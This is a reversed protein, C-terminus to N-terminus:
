WLNLMHKNAHFQFIFIHFQFLLLHFLFYIPLLLFTVCLLTLFALPRLLQHHTAASYELQVVNALKALTSNASGLPSHHAPWVWNLPMSDRVSVCVVIYKFEHVGDSM